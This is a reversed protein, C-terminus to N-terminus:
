ESFVFSSGRRKHRKCHHDDKECPVPSRRLQHVWAVIKLRTKSIRETRERKSVHSMQSDSRQESRFRERNQLTRQSFALLPMMSWRECSENRGDQTVSSMRLPKLGCLTFPSRRVLLVNCSQTTCMQKETIRVRQFM